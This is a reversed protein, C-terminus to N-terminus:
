KFYICHHYKAIRPLMLDLSYLGSNGLTILFGGSFKHCMWNELFSTSNTFRGGINLLILTVNEILLEM